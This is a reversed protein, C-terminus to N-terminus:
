RRRLTFIGPYVGGTEIIRVDAITWADAEVVVQNLAGRRRSSMLVLTGGTPLIAAAGALFERYFAYFDVKRGLRVGYPPNCVITGIGRDSWASTFRRSDVADLRRVVTTGVLVNASLNARTGAVAEPSIDSAYVRRGSAAAEIPITGSGCFPDLIAGPVGKIRGMGIDAGRVGGVRGVSSGAVGVGTVGAIRLLAAAVVTSLTVRPRYLWTFRRDMEVPTILIGYDVTTKQIEVRVTVAPDELNVPTAYREVLVAGLAREIEPSRFAHEGRRRCRVAIPTFRDLGHFSVERAAAVVREVAEGRGPEELEPIVTSHHIELAHYITRLPLFRDAPVERSSHIAVVGTRGGPSREIRIEQPDLRQAAEDATVAELGPNTILHYCYRWM